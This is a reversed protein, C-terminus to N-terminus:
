LNELHKYFKNVLNFRFVFKIVTSSLFGIKKKTETKDQNQRIIQYLDRFSNSYNM